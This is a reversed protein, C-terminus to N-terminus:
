PSVQLTASNRMFSTVFSAIEDLIPRHLAFEALGLEEVAQM